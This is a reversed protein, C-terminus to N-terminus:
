WIHPSHGPCGTARSLRVPVAAVLLALDIVLLLNNDDIATM